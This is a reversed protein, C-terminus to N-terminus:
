PVLINKTINFTTTAIAVFGGTVQRMKMTTYAGDVTVWGAGSWDNV